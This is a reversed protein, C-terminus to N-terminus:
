PYPDSTEVIVSPLQSAQRYREVARAFAERDFTLTELVYVTVFTPDTTNDIRLWEDPNQTEDLPGIGSGDLPFMLGSGDLPFQIPTGTLNEGILLLTLLTVKMQTTSGDELSRAQLYARLADVTPPLQEREAGYLLAWERQLADVRATGLSMDAYIGEVEVALEDGNEALIALLISLESDPDRHAWWSPLADDLAERTETFFDM